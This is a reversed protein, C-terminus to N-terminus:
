PSRLYGQPDEPTHTVVTATIVATIINIQKWRRHDAPSTETRLSEANEIFPCLGQGRVGSGQDHETFLYRFSNSSM